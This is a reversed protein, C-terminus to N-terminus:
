CCSCCCWLDMLLPSGRWRLCSSSLLRVVRVVLVTVLPRVVLVSAVTEEVDAGAPSVRVCGFGLSSVADLVAVFSWAEGVGSTGPLSRLLLLLLLLLLLVVVLLVAEVVLSGVELVFGGVPAVSVGFSLGL